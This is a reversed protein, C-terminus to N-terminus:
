PRRFLAPRPFYTAYLRGLIVDRHIFPDPLSRSDLSNNRHDGLVFFSDPPVTFPGHNGFSAEKTFSDDLPIDSGNIYVLGNRIEVTEYPLGIIRKVFPHDAPNIPNEFVIIEFRQPEGVVYSLRSGVVMGGTAITNEMSATLVQAHVIVTNRLFLGIAVAVVLRLGFRFIEKAIHKDRM